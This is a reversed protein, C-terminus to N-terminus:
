AAVAEAERVRWLTPPYGRRGTVLVGVAEVTVGELSRLMLSVERANLDLAWAVMRGTAPGHEALWVLVRERDRRTLHSTRRRDGTDLRLVPPAAPAPTPAHERHFVGSATTVPDDDILKGCRVCRPKEVPRLLREPKLRKITVTPDVRPEFLGYTRGASAFRSPKISDRM